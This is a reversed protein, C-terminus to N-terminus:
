YKYGYRRSLIGRLYEKNIEGSDAQKHHTVCTTALNEDDLRKDYDEEIKVIHHVELDNYTYVKNERCLLCLSNDREVIQNRKARWRRSWRFKNANTSPKDRTPKMGCDFKTAHIRGCYKCSKLM